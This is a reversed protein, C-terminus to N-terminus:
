RAPRGCRRGSCPDAGPFRSSRCCPRRSTTAPAPPARRRCSSSPSRRARGRAPVGRRRPQDRDGEVRVAGHAVGASQGRARLGRGRLDRAPRQAPRRRRARARAAARGGPDRALRLSGAARVLLRRLPDGGGGRAGDRGGRVHRRRRLARRRRARGCERPVPRRSGRGRGGGDGDRVDERSTASGCRAGAWCTHRGSSCRTASGSPSRSPRRPRRSRHGVGPLARRGGGGAPRLARSGRRPRDRRVADRPHPVGRARDRPGAQAADARRVPHVRRRAAGTAAGRAGGGRRAARLLAPRLHRLRDLGDGPQLQGDRGRVGARPLEAGRPRLLLRVRDGARDPEPRQRPDRGVTRAGAAAEDREGRTSYFYNSAAEVEGACSDVRRFAPAARRAAAAELERAFWPHLNEPQWFPDVELGRRAKAFAEAFTRGIGMSEGVSKM